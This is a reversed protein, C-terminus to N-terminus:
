QSGRVRFYEVPGGNTLFEQNGIVPAGMPQWGAPNGLNTSTELQYPALGGSWGITNTTFTTIQLPALNRTLNYRLAPDGLLNYIWVTVTPLDQSIHDAVAQRIMDGLGLQANARLLTVLRLNLESAEGSLSDGTPGFFAITGGNTPALLSEGLCRSGPLSYQGAVCTMVTVVPLRPCNILLSNTTDASTLYGATGLQTAAGHGAYNVLDVGQSWNTLILSHVPEPSVSNSSFLTTDAFPSNLVAATALIDSPFDGAGDPVDAILLARPSTPPPQREYAIIKNILGNIDNTTLGPLRGVAIEPLGGSAVAGMLSDSAVIGNPTSVILPPTLNNNQQYINLFDYTGKGVLVLYHPATSWNTWAMAALAQIAHPTPFGYGFENYVEDLPAILTKLGTQRRYNALNTAATLLSPPSVIVYDAANSSASFGAVQGLAEAYVPAAAGVQGAVYHAAPGAPVFSVRWTSAPQDFTLNTVVLPQKPNTVDWVAVNTSAFGDVTIVSNGNATFDALGNVANFTRPYSFTFSNVYWDSPLPGGSSEAAFVLTSSGTTLWASPITVTLNTETLGGWSWQGLVNKNVIIQIINTTAAVGGWLEVTLQAARDAGQTLHDLGVQYSATNFGPISALQSWMWPDDEPGLPLGPVYNVYDKYFQTAPYWNSGSTPAPGQGNESGIQGNAQSTLWYINNTSYNDRHSEAYFLLNNSDTTALWTVAQGATTLRFQGQALGSQITALPQGLLNALDAAAVFQLGSNTTTIKVFASGNLATLPLAAGPFTNFVILAAVWVTWLASRVSNM